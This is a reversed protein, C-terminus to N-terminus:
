ILLTSKLIKKYNKYSFPLFYRYYLSTTNKVKCKSKLIKLLKTPSGSRCGSGFQIRIWNSKKHIRISNFHQIRVMIRIQISTLGTGCCQFIFYNKSFTFIFLHKGRFRSEPSVTAYFIKHKFRLIRHIPFLTWNLTLVCNPLLLFQKVFLFVGSFRNLLLHQLMLHSSTDIKWEMKLM